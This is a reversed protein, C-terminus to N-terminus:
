SGALASVLPACSQADRDYVTFYSFGWRERLQAIRDTLYGLPGILCHPSHVLQEPTVPIGLQNIKRRIASEPEDTVEAWYAIVHLQPDRGAETAAARVVAVKEDIADEYASRASGPGTHGEANLLNIGVIDAHRAALRLM